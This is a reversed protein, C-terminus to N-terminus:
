MITCELKNFLGIQPSEYVMLKILKVQTKPKYYTHLTVSRIYETSSVGGFNRSLANAGALFRLIIM